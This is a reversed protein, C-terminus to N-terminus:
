FFWFKLYNSSSQLCLWLLEKNIGTLVLSPIQLLRCYVTKKRHLFIFFGKKYNVTVRPPRWLETTKDAGVMRRGQTRIGLVGDKSKEIQISITVLFSRFYFVFLPRSQGM